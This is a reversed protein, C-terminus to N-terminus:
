PIFKYGVEKEESSRHFRAGCDSTLTETLPVEANSSCLGSTDGGKLTPFVM